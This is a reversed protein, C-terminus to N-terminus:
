GLRLRDALMEGDIRALADLLMPRLTGPGAAKEAAIEGAVAMAGM